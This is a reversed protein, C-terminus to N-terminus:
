KRKKASQKPKKKKKNNKKASNYEKLKSSQTKIKGLVENNNFKIRNKDLTSKNFLRNKKIYLTAYYVSKEFGYELIPNTVKPKDKLARSNCKPKVWPVLLGNDNVVYTFTFTFHPSNSFIRMAYNKINKSDKQDDNTPRFELVVDYFLGKYSESPVKFLFVYKDGDDFVNFKFKGNDKIMKTMRNELDEIVRYRATTHSTKKGTPNQLLQNMTLMADKGFFPLNVKKIPM